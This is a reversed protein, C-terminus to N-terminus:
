AAALTARVSPFEGPGQEKFTSPVYGSTRAMPECAHYRSHTVVNDQLFLEVIGVRTKGVKSRAMANAKSSHATVGRGDIYVNFFQVSDTVKNIVDEAREITTGMRTSTRTGVVTGDANRYEIVPEGLGRKISFALQGNPGKGIYTAACGGRTQLAGSLNLKPAAAVAAPVNVLRPFQNGNVFQSLGSKRTGDLNYHRAGGGAWKSFPPFTVYLMCGSRSKTVQVSTGCATQVPLNTDIM